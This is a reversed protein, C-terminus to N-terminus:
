SAQGAEADHAADAAANAAAVIADLTEETFAGGSFACLKIAPTGGMLRMMEEAGEGDGAAGLSGAIGRWVPGFIERGVPNGLWEAITTMRDFAAPRKSDGQVRLEGALRIDRSSSGILIGYVGGDVFSRGEAGDWRSFDRADLEFRVTLEEGPDLALKAFRGLTKRPRPPVTEPAGIYLQVVESGAVSGDNRLKFAVSLTEAVGLEARDLELSEYAFSAYSLGHGFPFLPEIRRSDYWRYGIFRGETYASVGANGPFGLWAPTHEVALPFTEALKGSPNAKGFLIDAVAGGSAQGALGALLVAKAKPLWPMEVASGCMLVVVLRPQAASVAELLALQGAPLRLDRRDRGETEYSDPLGLFLVATAAARAAGVAEAISAEDSRGEDDCGASWSLRGAGAITAMADYPVDLRAANVKSSGGGQIRPRKAMAGIVAIPGGRLPLASGDNKLLVMSETAARRALAHQADFDVARAQAARAGYELVAEIVRGAAADLEAEGLRGERLAAVVRAPGVAGSSPMELDLGAALAVERRDVAGWDSVVFGDFGWEDRLLRTLLGRSESCYTGNLKNYACMLSAPRAEKVVREFAPLYIDRLAAEDVEASVRMRDTEQNNAAFHKPCAGVGRGQVGSVFAAGLEGALRPDESFYEFNRGCLPTRKMNLGPGLLVGVGEALCEDAIAAGVTRALGVDWSSAIASATPFCTAPISADIGLHDGGAAQKRLGHPGDSMFLAPLGLREIAATEWMAAGSCLAAKEDITMARLLEETRRANTTAM